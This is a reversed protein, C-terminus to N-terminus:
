KTCCNCDLTDRLIQNIDLKLNIVKDDVSVGVEELNDTAKISIRKPLQPLKATQLVQKTIVSTTRALAAPNQIMKGLTQKPLSVKLTVPPKGRSVFAMTNPFIDFTKNNILDRVEVRGEALFVSTATPAVDLAFTTGKVGIVSTPTRVDFKGRFKMKSIKFAVSGRQVNLNDGKTKIGLLKMRSRAELTVKSGDALLLVARSRRKTRILYGKYLLDGVKAKIPRISNPKMIQVRGKLAVIKALWGSNVQPQKNQNSVSLNIATILLLPILLMSKINKM